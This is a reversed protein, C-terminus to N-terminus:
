GPVPARSQRRLYLELLLLYPLYFAFNQILDFPGSFDRSSGVGDTALYWLGYHVRYLWSGIALWFLRLAWARHRAFERARAFRIAQVAAVIMLAGYLAFGVDMWVGGVTGRLAIYILGGVGSMLAGAVLVRGAGRHWGPWRRRVAASLQVPALLTVAAGSLMHGFIATNSAVAGAAFLYTDRLAAAGFGELGFRLAHWAFPAVGLVLLGLMLAQWPLRRLM